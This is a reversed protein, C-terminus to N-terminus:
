LLGNDSEGNEGTSTAAKLFDNIGNEFLVEAFVIAASMNQTSNQLIRSNMFQEISLQRFKSSFVRKALESHNMLAKEFSAILQHFELEAGYKKKLAQRWIENRRQQPIWAHNGNCVELSRRSYVLFEDSFKLENRKPYINPVPVFTNSAPIIQIRHLRIRHKLCMYVGPLNHSRLWTTFGNRDIQDKTCFPCSALWHYKQVHGRHQGSRMLERTGPTSANMFASYPKFGLLPRFFPVLTLNAAVWSSSAVAAITSRLEPCHIVKHSSFDAQRGFAAVLFKRWSQFGSQIFWRGVFGYLWEDEIPEPCFALM